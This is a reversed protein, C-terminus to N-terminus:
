GNQECCLVPQAVVQWRLSVAPTVSARSRPSIKQVYHLAFGGFPSTGEMRYQRAVRVHFSLESM